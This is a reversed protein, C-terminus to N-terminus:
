GSIICYLSKILKQSLIVMFNYQVKHLPCLISVSCDKQSTLCQPCDEKEIESCIDKYFMSCCNTSSNFTSFICRNSHQCKDICQNITEVITDGDSKIGVCNGEIFCQLGNVPLTYILCIIIIISLMNQGSPM